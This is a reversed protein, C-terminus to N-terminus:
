ELGYRVSRELRRVKTLGCKHCIAVANSSFPTEFTLRPGVELVTACDTLFSAGAFNYPEFTEALLWQLISLEEASLESVVDVAFCLETRLSKLQRGLREGTAMLIRGEASKSISPTRYCRLVM